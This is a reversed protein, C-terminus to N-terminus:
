LASAAAGGFMVESHVIRKIQNARETWAFAMQRLLAKNTNDKMVLALRLCEVASLTGAATNGESRPPWPNSAV